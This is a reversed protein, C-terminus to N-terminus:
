EKRPPKAAVVFLVTQTFKLEGTTVDLSPKIRATDNVLCDEVLRRTNAYTRSGASVGAIHMWQDFERQREHHEAASVRLGASALLRRIDADRLTSAHSPDREREIGNHAEADADDPLLLDAIALRGGDRLLRAMERLARLPDLLHHLAYCCVAVDFTRDAFPLAYADACVFSVNTLHERLLMQRAQEIMQPTFDAGVVHALRGALARAFTGPGCAIDVARSTARGPLDATVMEALRTAEGARGSLAFQAFPEASETFRQRIRDLHAQEPITV